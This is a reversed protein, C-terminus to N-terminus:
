DSKVRSLFNPSRPQCLGGQTKHLDKINPNATYQKSSLIHHSEAFYSKVISKLEERHAMRKQQGKGVKFYEKGKDLTNVLLNYLSM